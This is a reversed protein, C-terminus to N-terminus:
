CGGACSAAAGSSAAAHDGGHEDRCDDTLEELGLSDLVDAVREGFSADSTLQGARLLRPKDTSEGEPPRFWETGGEPEGDGVEPGTSQHGTWGSM